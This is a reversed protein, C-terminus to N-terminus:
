QGPGSEGLIVALEASLLRAFRQSRLVLAMTTVMKGPRGAVGATTTLALRGTLLISPQSPLRLGARRVSNATALRATVAIVRVPQWGHGPLAIRVSRAVRLDPAVAVPLLAAFRGSPMAVVARGFSYESTRAIGIV